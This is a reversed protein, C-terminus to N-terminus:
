TVRAADRLHHLRWFCNRNSKAMGHLWCLLFLRNLEIKALAFGEDRPGRAGGEQSANVKVLGVSFEVTAGCRERAQLMREETREM